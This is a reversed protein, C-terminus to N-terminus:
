AFAKDEDLYEKLEKISCKCKLHKYPFDGTARLAEANKKHLYGTRDMFQGWWGLHGGPNGSIAREKWVPPFLSSFATVSNLWTACQAMTMDPREITAKKIAQRLGDILKDRHNFPTDPAFYNRFHFTLFDPSGNVGYEPHFEYGIGYCSEKLTKEFEKYFVKKLFTDDAYIRIKELIRTELEMTDTNGDQREYKEILAEKTEAWRRNGEKFFNVREEIIEDYGLDTNNKLWWAYWAKLKILDHIFEKYIEFTM